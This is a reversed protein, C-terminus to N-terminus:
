QLGVVLMVIVSLALSWSRGEFRLADSTGATTELIRTSRGGPCFVIEFGTGMPATFTSSKDDFAYSYADPCVKKAQRSYYNPGCKGERGYKGTCCFQPKGYKSCASLCPNFPPHAVDTGVFCPCKKGNIEEIPQLQLDYPCWSSIETSTLATEFPLPYTSNTNLFPQQTNSEQGTYPNFSQSALDQVSAVCSPNTQNASPGGSNSANLLVQIALPLNYGDVLSIDYFSMNEYGPLNFEALTAAAGPVTCNLVGGCDGTLCSGYGTSNFTCNTRGWVRGDWNTQVTLNQSSGPPLEFGNTDPGNGDDTQIGPWITDSCGNTVILQVSNDNAAQRRSLEQRPQNSARALGFLSTPLLLKALRM